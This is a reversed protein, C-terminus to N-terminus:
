WCRVLSRVVATFEVVDPVVIRRRLRRGFVLAVIGSVLPDLPHEGPESLEVTPKVIANAGAKSVWRESAVCRPIVESRSEDVCLSATEGVPDSPKRPENPCGRGPVVIHEGFEPQEMQERLRTAPEAGKGIRKRIRHGRRDAPLHAFSIYETSNGIGVVPDDGPTAILSLVADFDAPM